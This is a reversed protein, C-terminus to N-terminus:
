IHVQVVCKPDIDLPKHTYYKDLMFHIILLGMHIGFSAPLVWLCIPMICAPSKRSLVYNYTISRRLLFDDHNPMMIYISAPIRSASVWHCVRLTNSEWTGQPMDVKYHILHCSETAIYSSRMTTLLIIGSLHYWLLTLACDSNISHIVFSARYELCFLRRQTSTCTHACLPKM